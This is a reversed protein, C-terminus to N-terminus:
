RKRFVSSTHIRFNLVNQHSGKHTIALNHRFEFVRQHITVSRVGWLNLFFEITGIIGRTIIKSSSNNCNYNYPLVYFLFKQM